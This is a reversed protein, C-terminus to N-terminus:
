KVVRPKLFISTCNNFKELGLIRGYASFFDLPKIEKEYNWQVYKDYKIFNILSFFDELKDNFKYLADKHIEIAIKPFTKVIIKSGRIRSHLLMGIKVARVVLMFILVLGKM